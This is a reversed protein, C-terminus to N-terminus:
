TELVADIVTALNTPPHLILPAAILRVRKRSEPSLYEVPSKGDVRALLLAPLLRAARQEFADPPEWDIGTRYVSWMREAAACLDGARAPMHIAKLLLHNMCFALDFAPDGFTACEADLLIPDAGRMLINKPSVDGHVLAIRAADTERYLAMMPGALDPNLSATHAIYPDPRLARFDHANQFDDRPFGARASASHIAALVETVREAEGGLPRGALLASKWNYAQDPDVYDMAFGNSAPSWGYLKPVSRPAVQSAFDLWRYEALNRSLPARWDAEVKLRELARKFCYRRGDIVAMAIESSVGGTLSRFDEFASGLGLEGAIRVCVERFSDGM